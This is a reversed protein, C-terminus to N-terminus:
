LTGYVYYMLYVDFKEGTFAITVKADQDKPPLWSKEINTIFYWICNVWHIYLGLMFILQFIKMSFKLKQNKKLFSIMRGLRLLRVLKLMGLFKLNSSSAEIFLSVFDM